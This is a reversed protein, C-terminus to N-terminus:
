ALYHVISNGGQGNLYEREEEMRKERYQLSVEASKVDEAAVLARSAITYFYTKRSFRNESVIKLLIHSGWSM